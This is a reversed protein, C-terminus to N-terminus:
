TYLPMYTYTIQPDNDVPIHAALENFWGLSNGVGSIINMQRYSIRLSTM